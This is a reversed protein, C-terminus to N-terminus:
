TCVANSVEDPRPGAMSRIASSVIIAATVAFRGHSDVDLARLPANHAGTDIRLLPKDAIQAVASSSVVVVASAAVLWPLLRGVRALAFLTLSLHM